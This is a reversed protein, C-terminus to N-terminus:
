GARHGSPRPPHEIRFPQPAGVANALVAINSEHHRVPPVFALDVPVATHCAVGCCSKAPTGGTDRQDQDEDLDGHCSAGGDPSGVTQHDAAAAAGASAMSVFPSLAGSLGMSAAFLVAVLTLALRRLRNM